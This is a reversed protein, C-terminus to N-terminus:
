AARPLSPSRLIKAVGEADEVAEFVPRLNPGRDIEGFAGSAALARARPGDLVLFVNRVGEGAPADIVDVIRSRDLHLEELGRQILVRKDTVLYRTERVMRGPRIVTDYLLFAGVAAVLLLTAAIGFVLALFALSTTPLGARHIKQLAPVASWLMRGFALFLFASVAILAWERRGQPLYARLTSRPSASWIVREGSDMRQALPREGHGMPAVREEGRIIAWVRDPCSVGSLTLMLRRRLAGTPVARVLDMDGVGPSNPNWFIRAFSIARREISRRFPGRQSIVHHETVIYKVKSLWVRPLQLCLLGLGTCWAAFVLSAAPSTHLALALVFAFSTSVAATIFLVIAAARLVPPTKIVQPHGTWVIRENFLSDRPVSPAM